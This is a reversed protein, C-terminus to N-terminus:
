STRLSRAQWREMLTGLTLLLGFPLLLRLLTLMSVVLLGEM